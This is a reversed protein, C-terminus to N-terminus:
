RFFLMFTPCRVQTYQVFVAALKLLGFETVTFVLFANSWGRVTVAYQKKHVVFCIPEFKIYLKLYSLSPNKELTFLFATKVGVVACKIRYM